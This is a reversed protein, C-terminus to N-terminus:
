YGDGVRAESEYGTDLCRKSGGSRQKVRLEKWTKSGAEDVETESWNSEREMSIETERSELLISEFDVCCECFLFGLFM